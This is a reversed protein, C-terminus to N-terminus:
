ELCLLVAQIVVKLIYLNCVYMQNENKDYSVAETRDEFVAIFHKTKGANRKHYETLQHEKIKESKGIDQFITKVFKRCQWTDDDDFLVCYKCLGAQLDKSYFHLGNKQIWSLQYTLTKTEGGKQVTKQFLSLKDTPCYHKTLYQYKEVDSLTSM